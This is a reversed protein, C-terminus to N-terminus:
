SLAGMSLLIRPVAKGSRRADQVAEEVTARDVFGLEVIVDSVFTSRGARDSPPTVGKRRQTAVASAQGGETAVSM